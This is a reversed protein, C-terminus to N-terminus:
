PACPGSKGGLSLRFALAVHAAYNILDECGFLQAKTVSRDRSRLYFFPEDDAPDNSVVIGHLATNRIYQMATILPKLEEYYENQEAGLPSQRVLVAINRMRADLSLPFIMFGAHEPSMGMMQRLCHGIINEIHAWRSAFQGLKQFEEASFNPEFRYPVPIM